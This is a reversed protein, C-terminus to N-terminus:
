QDYRYLEGSQKSLFWEGRPVEIYDLGTREGNTIRNLKANMSQTHMKRLMTKIIKQSDADGGDLANQVAIEQLWLERMQISDRQVEKLTAVAVRLQKRIDHLSMGAIEKKSQEIIDMHQM